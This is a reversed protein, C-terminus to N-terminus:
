RRRCRMPRRRPCPARRIPRSLRAATRGRAPRYGATRVCGDRDRVPDARARELGVRLMVRHGPRRLFIAGPPRQAARREVVTQPRRARDEAFLEAPLAGVPERLPRFRRLDNCMHAASSTRRRPSPLMPRRSLRRRQEILGGEGLEAQGAGVGLRDQRLDGRVVHALGVARDDVRLHEIVRAPDFGIEGDDTMRPVREREDGAGAEGRVIKVPDARRDRRARVRREDVRRRLGGHEREHTRLRALNQLRQRAVVNGIRRKGERGRAVEHDRARGDSASRM